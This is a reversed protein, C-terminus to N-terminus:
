PRLDCRCLLHFLRKPVTNRAPTTVTRMAWLPCCLVRRLKLHPAASSSVVWKGLASFFSGSIKRRSFQFTLFEFLQDINLCPHLFALCFSFIVTSMFTPRSLTFVIDTCSLFARACGQTDSCVIKM